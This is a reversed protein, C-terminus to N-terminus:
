KSLEVEKIVDQVPIFGNGDKDLYEILNEIDYVPLTFVAFLFIRM